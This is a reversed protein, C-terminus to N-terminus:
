TSFGPSNFDGGHAIHALPELTEPKRLIGLGKLLVHDVQINNRVKSFLVEPVEANGSETV